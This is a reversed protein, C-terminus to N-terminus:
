KLIEVTGFFYDRNILRLCINQNDQQPLKHNSFTFESIGHILVHM